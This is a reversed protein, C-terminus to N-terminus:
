VGREDLSEAEMRRAQIHAQELDIGYYDSIRVLMAFIDALEDGSIEKNTEYGKITERGTFYYKEAVMVHKALEGVQKVLEMVSGEIGWPRGEIKEFRRYIQRFLDIAQQFTLPTSTNDM